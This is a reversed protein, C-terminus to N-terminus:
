INSVQNGGKGEQLMLSVLWREKRSFPLQLRRTETVIFNESLKKWDPSNMEDVAGPGKMLVIRGKRKLYPSALEIFELSDTFARSTVFSFNQGSLENVGKMKELRVDLIEISRLHLTRAMHKLFYFRNKRPELLTVSLDPCVTKLVLGPFGAGTGVDLLTEYRHTDQPLLSLLTLSDLFHNELIQKEDLSRAVLNVKQNWKLLEQFYDALRSICDPLNNVSLGMIRLGEALFSEIDATQM